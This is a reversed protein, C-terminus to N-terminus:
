KKRKNRKMFIFWYDCEMVDRGYFYIRIQDDKEAYYLRDKLPLNLKKIEKKLSDKAVYDVYEQTYVWNGQFYPEIWNNFEIRCTEYDRRQQLIHLYARKLEELPYEKDDCYNHYNGEIISRYTMYKDFELDDYEPETDYWFECMEHCYYHNFLRDIFKNSLKLPKFIFGQVIDKELEKQILDKRVSIM